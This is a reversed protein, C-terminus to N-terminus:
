FKLIGVNVSGKLKYLAVILSLGIASESAAISLLFLVFIHGMIDDLYISAIAFNLSTSLTLLELNILIMVINKRNLLVGVLGFFFLFSTLVLIKEM